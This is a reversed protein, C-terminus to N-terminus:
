LVNEVLSTDHISSILGSLTSIFKADSHKRLTSNNLLKASKKSGLQVGVDTDDTRSPFRPMEIFIGNNSTM